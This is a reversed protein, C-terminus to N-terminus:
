KFQCFTLSASFDNIISLYCRFISNTNKYRKQIVAIKWFFIKNLVFLHWWPSGRPASPGPCNGGNGGRLGGRSPGPKPTHNRTLAEFHLGNVVRCSINMWENGYGSKGQPARPAPVRPPRSIGWPKWCDWINRSAGCWSPFLCPQHDLWAMQHKSSKQIMNWHTAGVPSAEGIKGPANQDRPWVMTESIKGIPSVAQCEPSRIECSHVNDHLTAGHVRRLFWRDAARM